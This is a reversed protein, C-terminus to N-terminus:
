GGLLQHACGNKKRPWNNKWGDTTHTLPLVMIKLIFKTKFGRWRVGAVQSHSNRLGKPQPIVFSGARDHKDSETNKEKWCM